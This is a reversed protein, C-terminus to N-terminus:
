KWGAYIQDYDSFMPQPGSPPNNTGGGYTPDVLLFTFGKAQGPSLFNVNSFSMVLTGDVWSKIIGDGSTGPTTEETWLAEVDHWSGDSLNSKVNPAGNGQNPQQNDFYTNFPSQLFINLYQNIKENGDGGGIGHNNPPTQQTHILFIKTGVNGNNTWGSSYRKRFRLYFTPGSTNFSSAGFRAPSNGGHLSPPYLVRVGSDGNVQPVKVLNGAWEGVGSMTTPSFCTFTTPTPGGSSWSTGSAGGNVGGNAPNATMRGTDILTTLGGPANAGPGSTAGGFAGSTNLTTSGSAPSCTCTITTSGNGTETALGTSSNITASGSNSSAWSLAPCGNAGPTLVNLNADKVVATYQQTAGVSSLSAGVPSVTVTQPQGLPPTVGSCTLSATGFASGCTGKITVTGNGVETALGTSSNVTAISTNLSSWVVAPVGGVGPTLPNHSQDQVTVTFQQTAGAHNLSASSPSVTVFTPVPASAGSTTLTATGSAAGCIATIVTSGNGVETALGSASNITASTQNTSSWVIAPIGGVGPTLVNRNQDLVIATYQQTAGPSTLSVGQPSVTVTTPQPTGGTGQGSGQYYALMEETLNILALGENQLPTNSPPYTYKTPMSSATGRIHALIEALCAFVAARATEM